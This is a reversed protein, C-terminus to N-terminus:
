FKLLFITRGIDIAWILAFVVLTCTIFGVLTKSLNQRESDNAILAAMMPTILSFGPFLVFTSRSIYSAFAELIWMFVLSALVMMAFKTRGFIPLYPMLVHTVFFYVFLSVGIIFVLQLPMFIFLAAYAATLFGGSRIGTRDFLLSSAIVSLIVAIILLNLNYSYFVMGTDQYTSTSGWYTPLFIKLVLIIQLILFTLFSTSLLTLVTMCVGQREIDQAILGILVFGIGYLSGQYLSLGLGWLNGEWLVERNFALSICFANILQLAMGVLVMVVLRRRGYLFMKRAIIKQVLFYTTIGLAITSIIYIPRDIFIAMYGAVAMSGNTLRWRDYFLVSIIIGLALALRVEEVPLNYCHISEFYNLM